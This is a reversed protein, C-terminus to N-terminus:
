PVRIIVISANDVDESIKANVLETLELAKEGCSGRKELCEEIERWSVGEYMGDSLLVVYEGGYLTVPVDFFEIDRFGDQGVYNYTRHQELLSVAAQRTLKGEIYKQRALVSVTHGSTVPVLEGNRYVATKVNGVSAYYLKRSKVMVAAVSASGREGNLRELISRNAAHFARRFYYQPNYFANSDRFMDVFVEVATRSAIRGGYGSGMGDALVAMIGGEGEVTGYADEQIERSGITACTGTEYGAHGKGQRGIVLFRYATLCLAMVGLVWMTPVYIDMGM